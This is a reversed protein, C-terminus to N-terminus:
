TALRRVTMGLDDLSGLTAVHLEGMPRVTTEAAPQNRVVVTRVDLPMHRGARRIEAPDVLSGCVLVAVSAGSHDRTVRRAVESLPPAQREHDVGAFQDLLRVPSGGSLMRASTVATLTHGEALTQVGLSAAVSVAAEFEEDSAYDELRTSLVVLMHSRRTEEFQRVMM